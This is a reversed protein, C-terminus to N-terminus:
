RPNARFSRGHRLGNRLRESPSKELNRLVHYVGSVDVSAHLAIAHAQQWLLEDHLLWAQQESSLADFEARVEPSLEDLKM